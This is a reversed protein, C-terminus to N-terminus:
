LKLQEKIMQRLAKGDLLGINNVQAFAVADRTFGGSTVVFGGSFVDGGM